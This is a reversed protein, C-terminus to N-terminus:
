VVWKGNHYVAAISQNYAIGFWIVCDWVSNLREVYDRAEQLTELCVGCNEGGVSIRYMGGKTTM